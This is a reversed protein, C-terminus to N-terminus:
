DLAHTRLHPTPGSMPRTLHLTTCPMRTSVQCPNIKLSPPMRTSIQCPNINLSPSIPMIHANNSTTNAAITSPSRATRAPKTGGRVGRLLMAVCAPMHAHTAVHMASLLMGGTMKDIM